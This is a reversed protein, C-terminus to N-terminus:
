LAMMDLGDVVEVTKYLNSVCVSKKRLIILHNKDSLTRKHKSLVNSGIAQVAILLYKCLTLFLVM